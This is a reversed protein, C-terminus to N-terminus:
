LPLLPLNNQKRFKNVSPDCLDTKFCETCVIDKPCASFGHVWKKRDRVNQEGIESYSPFADSM